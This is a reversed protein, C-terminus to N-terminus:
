VTQRSQLEDLHNPRRKPSLGISWCACVHLESCPSGYLPLSAAAACGRVLDSAWGSVDLGLSAFVADMWRTKPNQMNQPISGLDESSAFLCCCRVGACLQVNRVWLLLTQSAAAAGRPNQKPTGLFPQFSFGGGGLCLFCGSFLVGGEWVVQTEVWTEGGGAPWGRGFGSCLM